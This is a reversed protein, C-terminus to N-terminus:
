GNRTRLKFFIHKDQNIGWLAGKYASIHTLKGSVPKWQFNIKGNSDFYIKQMEFIDDQSNIGWVSTTDVSIKKM